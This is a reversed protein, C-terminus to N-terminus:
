VLSVPQPERGGITHSKGRATPQRSLELTKADKGPFATNRRPHYSGKEERINPAIFKFVSRRADENSSNPSVKYGYNPAHALYGKDVFFVM